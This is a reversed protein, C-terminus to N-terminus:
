RRRNKYTNSRNTRTMRARMIREHELYCYETEFPLTEKGSKYAERILRKFKNISTYLDDESMERIQDLTFPTFEFDFKRGM